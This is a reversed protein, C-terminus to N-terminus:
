ARALSGFEPSPTAAPRPVARAPSAWPRLGATWGAWVFLHANMMNIQSVDHFMGNLLYAALTAVFVLAVQRAWPPGDRNNWVRLADRVWFVLLAVFMVAGPLGTETLLRLLVNHQVFPRAKELVLGTDRDGLHDLCARSYQGIGCGVLPRDCFMKWAVVALIPRLRMSERTDAASAYVDRKFAIYRHGYTGVLIVAVVLGGLFVPVRVRWPLVFWTLVALSVAAGLWVSRTYTCFIGVALLAAYALILLRGPRGAWPWLMLGAALCTTLLVGNGSANLLPGRGRGLYDAYEPSAIYQPYVLWWWGQTEAIGTVTLYVGLAVFVGLLWKVKTETLSAGRAVYYLGLPLTFFFLLQALGYLGDARWDHTFTSVALWGFFAAMLYEPKGWTQRDLWGCRWWILFQVMLAAWLVRDITVDGLHFFMHGFLYGAFTVVLCGAFVGGRLFLVMAWIVGTIAAIAALIEVAPREPVRAAVLPARNGNGRVVEAAASAM